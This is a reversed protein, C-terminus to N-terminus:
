LYVLNALYIYWAYSKHVFLLTRYSTKVYLNNFKNSQVLRGDDNTFNVINPQLFGDNLLVFSDRIIGVLSYFPAIM